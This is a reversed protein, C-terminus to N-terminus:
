VPQKQSQQKKNKTLGMDKSPDFTGVHMDAVEDEDIKL